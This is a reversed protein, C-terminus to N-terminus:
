FDFFIQIDSFLYLTCIFKIKSFNFTFEYFTQSSHIIRSYFTIYRVYLGDLIKQDLQADFWRTHM